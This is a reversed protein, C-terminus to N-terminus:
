TNWSLEIGVTEHVVLSPLLKSSVGEPAFHGCHGHYRKLTEQFYHSLCADELVDIKM